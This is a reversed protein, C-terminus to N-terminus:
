CQTLDPLNPKCIAIQGTDVVKIGRTDGNGSSKIEVYASNYVPTAGVGCAAPAANTAICAEPNPRRFFVTLTTPTCDPAAQGVRVCLRSISYGKNLSFPSPPIADESGDAARQGDGNQSDAFLYYQYPVAGVAPFQIGYGSGFTTVGGSTLGRLSTGYVQAQRVSLAMSYSLSRLLTSSNFKSQQFLIFTTILLIIASVVILEVLTFGKSFSRRFHKSSILM